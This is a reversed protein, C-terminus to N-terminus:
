TSLELDAIMKDGWAIIYDRQNPDAMGSCHCRLGEVPRILFELRLSDDGVEVAFRHPRCHDHDRQEPTLFEEPLDVWFLDGLASPRAEENLYELVKELDDRSLEDLLYSRM